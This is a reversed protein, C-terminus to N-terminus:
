SAAQETPVPPKEPKAATRSKMEYQAAELDVHLSDLATMPMETGWTEMERKFWSGNLPPDRGNHRGSLGPAFDGIASSLHRRQAPRYAHRLRPAYGPWRRQYFMCFSRRGPGSNSVAFYWAQPADIKQTIAQRSRKHESVRSAQMEIM